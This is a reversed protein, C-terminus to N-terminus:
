LRDKDSTVLNLDDKGYLELADAHAREDDRVAILVDLMSEINRSAHGTTSAYYDHAILPIALETRLKEENEQIYADYTDYAHHEILESLNYAMAPSILFVGASVFFYVMSLHRALFQDLWMSGAGMEMMIALHMAENDAEELHARLRDMGKRNPLGLTQYLHLMCAYAFFPIRALVELVYFRRFADKGVYINDVVHVATNIAAKNFSLVTPNLSVQAVPPAKCSRSSPTPNLRRADLVRRMLGEVAPSTFALNFMQSCKRRHGEQKCPITVSLVKKDGLHAQHLACDYM